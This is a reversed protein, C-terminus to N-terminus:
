VADHLQSPNFWTRAEQIDTQESFLWTNWGLHSWQPGGLCVTRVERHELVIELDWELPQDLFLHVLEVLTQFAKSDPFFTHFIDATEPGVRIRFAGMRDAIEHGLYSDEGLVNGSIGLYWRQDEPIEAMRPVCQIIDLRPLNLADILLTKLGLASRPFQSFLGIYRLLSHVRPIEKRLAKTGPGWLCFLRELYGPDEQEVVKVHQRYKAWCHYFLPYFPANIVDLFDRAVTMDQYAEDMLDETYFTPLPSSVGYLGLFTATILLRHRDGPIEDIETIDTEPFDLSLKPRVRIARTSAREDPKEERDRALWYRFLREAQIFSFRRGNTLLDQKISFVARRDPSAM